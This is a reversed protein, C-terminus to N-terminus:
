LGIRHLEDASLREARLLRDIETRTQTPKAALLQKAVQPEDIGIMRGRIAGAVDQITRHRADDPLREWQMLGFIGRDRMLGGENPGALFSMTLAALVQEYPQGTVLRLGALDMWYASSLPRVQLLAAMADARKGIAAPDSEAESRRLVRQLVADRLGASETWSGLTTRDLPAPGMAAFNVVLLGRVAAFGCLGLVVLATLVRMSQLMGPM